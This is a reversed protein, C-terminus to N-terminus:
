DSAAEAAPRMSSHARKHIDGLKLGALALAVLGGVLLPLTLVGFMVNAVQFATADPVYFLKLGM